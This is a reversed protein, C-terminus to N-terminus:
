YRQADHGDVEVDSIPLRFAHFTSSSADEATMLGHTLADQIDKSSSTIAVSKFPLFLMTFKRNLVCDPFNM